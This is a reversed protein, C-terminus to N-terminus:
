FEYGVTLTHTTKSNFIALAEKPVSTNAPGDMFWAQYRFAWPGARYSLGAMLDFGLHRQNNYLFTAAASSEMRGSTRTEFANLGLEAGFGWFHKVGILAISQATSRMVWRGLGNCNGGQCQGGSDPIYGGPIPADAMVALADITASGFHTYQVAVSTNWRLRESDWRLGVTKSTRKFDRPQNVNWYTGDPPGGFRTVGGIISLGESAAPLAVCVALLVAARKM